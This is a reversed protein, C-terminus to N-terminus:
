FLKPLDPETSIGTINCDKTLCFLAGKLTYYEKTVIAFGEPKRNAKIYKETTKHIHCVYGLVENELRNPHKHSPGNYRCLVLTEGNPAVWSLGCSFDDDMGERMNQRTFLEFEYESDNLCEVKYNVQNHGDKSKIKTNPNTVRKPIKMLESVKEDTISEFAM